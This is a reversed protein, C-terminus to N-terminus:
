IKGLNKGLGVLVITAFLFVIGYTLHTESVGRAYAMSQAVSDGTLMEMTVNVRPDLEEVEAKIYSSIKKFSTKVKAAADDDLGGISLHLSTNPM